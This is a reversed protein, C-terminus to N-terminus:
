DYSQKCFLEITIENIILEFKWNFLLFFVTRLLGVVVVFFNWGMKLLSFLFIKREIPARM